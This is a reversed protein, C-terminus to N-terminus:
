AVKRTTEPETRLAEAREHLSQREIADIPWAAILGDADPHDVNEDVWEAQAASATVRRAHEEIMRDVIGNLYRVPSRVDDAVLLEERALDIFHPPLGAFKRDLVSRTNRAIESAPLLELLVDVGRAASGGLMNALAADPSGSTLSSDVLAAVAERARTQEPPQFTQDQHVRPTPTQSPDPDPSGDRLANRERHRKQRSAADARRKKVVDAPPNYELYDKVEFGGDAVLWLAADRLEVVHKRTANAAACVVKVSRETLAGDTLNRACYTLATVHLRFARDSLGIIKPHESFGDDILLYSM